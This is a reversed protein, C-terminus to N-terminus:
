NLSISAGKIKNSGSSRSILHTGKIVVKGDRRLTISAKGCRLSVEREGEIVVREGDVFAETEPRSAAEPNQVLGLLLPRTRSGDIFMLVAQQGIMAPTAAVVTRAPVEGDVGPFRVLPAGHDDFGTLEGLTAGDLRPAPELSVQDLLPKRERAADDPDAAPTSKRSM